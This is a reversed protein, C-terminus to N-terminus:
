AQHPQSLQSKIWQDAAKINVYLRRRVVATHVGDLWCGAKRRQHIANPTNGTLECFKEALVWEPTITTEPKTVSAAM